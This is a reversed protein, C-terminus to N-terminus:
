KEYGIALAAMVPTKEGANTDAAVRYRLELPVGTNKRGTYQLTSYHARGYTAGTLLECQETPQRGNNDASSTVEEITTYNGAELTFVLFAKSRSFSFPIQPIYELNNFTPDFTVPGASLDFVSSMDIDSTIDILCWYLTDIAAITQGNVTSFDAVEKRYFHIERTSGTVTSKTIYTWGDAEIATRWTSDMQYVSGNFTNDGAIVLVLRRATASTDPSNYLPQGTNGGPVNRLIGTGDGTEVTPALSMKVQIAEMYGNQNLKASYDPLLQRLVLSSLKAQVAVARESDYQYVVAENESGDGNANVVVETAYWERQDGLVVNMLIHGCNAFPTTVQRGAEGQVYPQHINEGDYALTVPQVGRVRYIEWSFKDDPPVISVAPVTEGATNAIWQYLRLSRLDGPVSTPVQQEHLLTWSNSIAAVDSKYNFAFLLFIDGGYVTLPQLSSGTSYRGQEGAPGQSYMQVFGDDAYTTGNVFTVDFGTVGTTNWLDPSTASFLYTGSTVASETDGVYAIAKLTTDETIAVAGSYVTGVTKSPVTVGDDTYRITAGSTSSAMTVNVTGSNGTSPSPSFVPQAVTEPDAVVIKGRLAFTYAHADTVTVSTETIPGNAESASVLSTTGLNVFSDFTMVSGREWVKASIAGGGASAAKYRSVYEFSNINSEGFETDTFTSGIGVLVPKYRNSLGSGETGYLTVGDGAFTADGDGASQKGDFTSGAAYPLGDRILIAITLETSWPLTPLSGTEGGAMEKWCATGVGSYESAAYGTATTLLAYGTPVQVNSGGDRPIDADLKDSDHQILLLVDGALIGGAVTPYTGDVSVAKVLPDAYEYGTGGGAYTGVGVGCLIHIEDDAHKRMAHDTDVDIFISDTPANETSFLGPRFAYPTYIRSGDIVFANLVALQPATLAVADRWSTGGQETDIVSSINEIANIRSIVQNLKTRVSSGSEGNYLSAIAM